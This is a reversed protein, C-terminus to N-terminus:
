PLESIRARARVIAEDPPLSPVRPAQWLAAFSREVDARDTGALEAVRGPPVGADILLVCFVQRLDGPPSADLGAERSLEPWTQSRWEQLDLSWPKGAPSFVRRRGGGASQARWEELDVALPGWLPVSRAPTGSALARPLPEVTISDPGVDSWRLAIAEAPRLGAYAIAGVFVADRLRGTRLLHARMLEIPEASPIAPFAWYMLPYRVRGHKRKTDQRERMTPGATDDPVRVLFREAITTVAIDPQVAEVVAPDLNPSHAIVLRGWSEALYSAFFYCYSDGLLLCTTRPAVASRTVALAGTGEVCNDYVLRATRHRVHAMGQTVVRPPDLKEGLDGSVEVDVFLVDNEAVPRTPVLGRADEMMCLYALFAGYDTWHSDVQSCVQHEAKAALLENLPYIIRVGSDHRKMHALLQHVPREAASEVGPPLMEPYVSHNNPAILVLHACDRAALQETRRELLTRWEELESETLRVRGSHQAMVENNDDAMFLYGSRGEVVKADHVVRAGSRAGWANDPM